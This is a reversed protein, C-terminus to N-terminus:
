FFRIKSKDKNPIFRMQFGFSINGIDKGIVQQYDIMLRLISNVEYFFTTGVFANLNSEPTSHQGGVNLSMTNFLEYRLSLDYNEFDKVGEVKRFDFQVGIDDVITTKAGAGISMGETTSYGGLINIFTQSIGFLPVLLFILILINKSITKM